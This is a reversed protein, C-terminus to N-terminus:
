KKKTFIDAIRGLKSGVFGISGAVAFIGSILMMAVKVEFVKAFLSAVFM